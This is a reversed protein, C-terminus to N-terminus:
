WCELIFNRCCVPHHRCTCGINCQGFGKASQQLGGFRQKVCRLHDVFITTRPNVFPQFRDTFLAACLSFRTAAKSTPAAMSRPTSGSIQNRAVVASLRGNTKSWLMNDTNHNVTFCAENDESMETINPSVAARASTRRLKKPLCKRKLKIATGCASGAM